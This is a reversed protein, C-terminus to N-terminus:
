RLSKCREWKCKLYHLDFPIFFLTPLAVLLGIWGFNYILLICILADLAGILFYKLQKFLM